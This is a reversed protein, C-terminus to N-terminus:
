KMAYRPDDKTSMLLGKGKLKDRIFFDFELMKKETINPVFLGTAKNEIPNKEFVDLFDKKALRKEKDDLFPYLEKYLEMQINLLYSHLPNGDMYKMASYSSQKRILSDIRELTALGMNFVANNDVDKIM